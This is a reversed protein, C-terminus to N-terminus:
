EPPPKLPGLLVEAICRKQLELLQADSELAEHYELVPM